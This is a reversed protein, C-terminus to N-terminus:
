KSPDIRLSNSILALDRIEVEGWDRQAQPLYRSGRCQVVILTTNFSHTSLANSVGVHRKEGGRETGQLMTNRGVWSMVSTIILLVGISSMLSLGLLSLSEKWTIRVCM